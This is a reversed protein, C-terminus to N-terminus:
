YLSCSMSWQSKFNCKVRVLHKHFTNDDIIIVGNNVTLTVIRPTYHRHSKSMTYNASSPQKSTYTTTSIFTTHKTSNTESKGALLCPHHTVGKKETQTEQKNISGLALRGEHHTNEKDTLLYSSHLATITNNTYQVTSYTHECSLYTKLLSHFITVMIDLMVIIVIWKRYHSNLFISAKNILEINFTCYNM